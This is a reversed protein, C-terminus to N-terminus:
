VSTDWSQTTHTTYGTLTPTETHGKTMPERQLEKPEKAERYSGTPRQEYNSDEPDTSTKSSDRWKDKSNGDDPLARCSVSGRKNQFSADESRTSHEAESYAATCLPVRPPTGDGGDTRTLM